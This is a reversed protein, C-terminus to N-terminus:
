AVLGRRRLIGMWRKATAYDVGMCREIARVAFGGVIRELAVITAAEALLQDTPREAWTARITRARKAPDAWVQYRRDELQPNAALLQERIGAAISRHVASRALDDTRVPSMPSAVTVSAATYRGLSTTWSAEITRTPETASGPLVAQLFDPTNINSM